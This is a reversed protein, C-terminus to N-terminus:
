DNIWNLAQEKANFDFHKVEARAFHTGITPMFSLIKDNTIIAVKKIHQHHNKIFKLHSILGSLNKWGPFTETQIILGNLDGHAEIFPDIEQVLSDFDEKTLTDHPILIVIKDDKILEHSLM